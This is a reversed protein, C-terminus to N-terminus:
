AGEQKRPLILASLFSLLLPFALFDSAALRLVTTREVCEDNALAELPAAASVPRTVEAAFRTIHLGIRDVLNTELEDPYQEVVSPSMESVALTVFAVFMAVPRGLGASLFVGISVVFALIAVLVVYARILNWGFADAPLLLNIDKRPRFMVASTGENFFSLRDPSTQSTQSTHSTQSTLPITLVAQTINSVVGRYDGLNFAGRVDQRMEYQNTFRMRVALGEIGGSGEEGRVGKVGEFTWAATENTRITEYRDVARNALLRLVIEKKARKVAVPTEPDKMYSEYMVQAEERPSPLVPSLVHNCPRALDAKFALAACAVALVLAGAAVHALIKGLVILTYRVPRVLTLQLRKAERERALSGTASALLAIVLLTFVGGLSYHVYLERAGDATGDGKMVFPLGFMWLVSAAVLLALAKSRVFGTFELWFIRWFSIM